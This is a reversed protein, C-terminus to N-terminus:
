IIVSDKQRFATEILSADYGKGYFYRFVKQRTKPDSLDKNRTYRLFQKQFSCTDSIPEEEFFLDILERTIGKKQLDLRLCKISKKCHYTNVYMRIYEFDNLYQYKQLFVVVKDIVTDPYENSKLKERLMRETMPRSELLYLAREKGRKYIIEDMISSIIVDDIAANEKINYRKIEKGYLAFLFSDDAYIRYKKGKGEEIKTIFM